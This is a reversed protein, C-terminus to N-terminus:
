ILVDLVEFCSINLFKEVKQGGPDPGPNRIRIRIWHGSQIRIWNPDPDAVRHTESGSESECRNAIPTRSWSLYFRARFLFLESM